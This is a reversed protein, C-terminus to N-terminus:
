GTLLLIEIKFMEKYRNKAALNSQGPHSLWSHSIEPRSPRTQNGIYAPYEYLWGM